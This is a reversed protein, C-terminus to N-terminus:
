LSLNDYIERKLAETFKAPDEGIEDSLGLWKEYNAEYRALLAEPDAVGRDAAQGLIREREAETLQDRLGAYEDGLMVVTAGNEEASVVGQEDLPIYGMTANAIYEPMHSMFSSKVEDSFDDWIAKDFTIFTTTPAIGLAPESVISKTLEAIGFLNIWNANGIMCDINGREFAQSIEGFSVNVGNSGLLGIATNMMGTSGRVRAGALDDLSEIEKTCILVYPSLSHGGLSVIGAAEGEARCDPCDTYYTELAAGQAAVRNLNLAVTDEIMAAMPLENGYFGAFVTGGAVAGSQIGPLTDLPGFMQGATFLQAEFEGGTDESVAAFLPLIGDTVAVESAPVYTSFNYLEASASTAGIILASTALLRTTINTM